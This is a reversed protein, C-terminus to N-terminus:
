INAIRPSRKLGVTDLNTLSYKPMGKCVRSKKAVNKPQNSRMTATSNSPPIVDNAHLPTQEIHVSQDPNRETHAINENHANNNRAVNPTHHKNDKYLMNVELQNKEKPVEFLISSELETDTWVKTGNTINGNDDFHCERKHTALCKWRKLEIGKWM